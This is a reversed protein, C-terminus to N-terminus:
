VLSVDKVKLIVAGPETVSKRTELDFHWKRRAQDVEKEWSAGKPFLAIGNTGMHRQVFGLLTDLDALARASLVDANLPEAAEIRQSIVTCRADCERVVSRLFAAKRQDSEVLTTRGQNERLIAVVMGPFGGGSGLDGWHLCDAGMHFIQASDVIHRMWVQDLSSKSVLNIKPTWRRLLDVYVELKRITERSVDFSYLLDM